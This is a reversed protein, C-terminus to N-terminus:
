GRGPGTEKRPSELGGRFCTFALVTLGGAAGLLGQRVEAQSLIARITKLRGGGSPAQTAAPPLPTRGSGGGLETQLGEPLAIVQEDGPAATYRSRAAAANFGGDRQWASALREWQRIQGELELLQHQNGARRENLQLAFVVKPGLVTLSYCGAALFLCTWFALSNWGAVSASRFTGTSSPSTTPCTAPAPCSESVM